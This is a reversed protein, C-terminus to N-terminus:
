LDPHNKLIEMLDKSKEHVQRLEILSMVHGQHELKSLIMRLNAVSEEFLVPHQPGIVPVHNAAEMFPEPPPNSDEYGVVGPPPRQYTHSNPDTPMPPVSPNVHTHMHHCIGNQAYHSCTCKFLHACYQPPCRQCKVQCFEQACIIEDAPELFYEEASKKFHLNNFDKQIKSMTDQDQSGSLSALENYFIKTSHKLKEICIDMRDVTSLQRRFLTLYPEAIEISTPVGPAHCKAWEISPSYKGEPGYNSLFYSMEETQACHYFQSIRQSFEFKNTLVRLNLIADLLYKDKIRQKMLKEFSGDMLVRKVWPAEAQFVYM